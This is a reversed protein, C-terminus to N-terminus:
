LSSRISDVFTMDIIEDYGVDTQHRKGTDMRRPQDHQGQEV